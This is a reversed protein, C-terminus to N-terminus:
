LARCHADLRAGAGAAAAPEMVTRSEDRVLDSLLIGLASLAGPWRPVLVRPMELAEALACAHLPGAGGFSVLTYQRPDHGREISIQRLAKAMTAEALAVIGAAFAEVTAVPGRQRALVRRAREADLPLRGGLLGEPGLRGLVLNADTVTAHDGRGYCAPGPDAGASQPGVRLAGGADFGAISGGGAGVTHIDLMPVAVPMGLVQRENSTHLQGRASSEMLAVDTSTGGMDFSIIRDCGALQALRCAGVVGGAPGSLITRVPERAATAADIIGGSSQMVQLRSGARRGGRAALRAELGRLYRGMRPALCANIVVTAGREYERFEPLIEHALSVPVGLEELARGVRQENAPNAFGFLLSVAVAEPQAAAVQRFLQELGTRTVAKEVRGDPLTREEIGFRLAAPALEIPPPNSWRYLHPRAQRGIALTDEFGATTVFAVRAGSRELLTNTGVTTGHRVERAAAGLQELAGLLALGPDAPTSPLKLVELAGERVYVCDTFTGGTDVAVRVTQPARPSAPSPGAGIIPAAARRM